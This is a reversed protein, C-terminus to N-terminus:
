QRIIRVNSPASSAIPVSPSPMYTGSVFRKGAPIASHDQNPSFPDFPPWALDGFWAPKSPYYLSKPLSSAPADEQTSIGGGGAGLAVYNLKRITTAEVDLDRERFGEPMAWIV